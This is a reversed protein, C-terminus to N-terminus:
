NDKKIAKWMEKTMPFNETDNEDEAIGFRLRIIKEEKPSLLKLSNKVISMLEKHQVLEEPQRFLSEDPVNNQYHNKEDNDLRVLDKNAKLTYKIKNENEGTISSLEKISPTKGNENEYKKIALKIQQNFMRSHVPVKINTQNENIFRLAAERIWPYAYTSFKYGLEPDFKDVAKMLGINSEQVLDEFSTTRRYYKKAISIVLKYNSEILIQRALKDGKKARRSLSIEEDKTLRKTQKIKNVYTENIALSMSFKEKKVKLLYYWLDIIIVRRPEEEKNKEVDEIEYNPIELQVFPREEEINLNEIEIIDIEEESM